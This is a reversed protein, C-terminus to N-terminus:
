VPFFVDYQFYATTTVKNNTYLGFGGQPSTSPKYSGAPYVVDIGGGSARLIVNKTGYSVGVNGFAASLSSKSFDARFVEVALSSTQNYIQIVSTGVVFLALGLGLLFMKM